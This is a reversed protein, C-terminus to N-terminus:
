VLTNPFFKPSLFCYKRENTEEARTIEEIEVIEYKQCSYNLKIHMAHM